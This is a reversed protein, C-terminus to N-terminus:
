IFKPNNWLVSKGPRLVWSQNFTPKIISPIRLDRSTCPSFLTPGHKATNNGRSRAYRDDSSPGGGTARTAAGEQEPYMTPPMKTCNHPVPWQILRLHPIADTEGGAYTPHTRAGTNAQNVTDGTRRGSRPTCPESGHVLLSLRRVAATTAAARLPEPGFSSPVRCHPRLFLSYPFALSGRLPSAVPPCGPLVKASFSRAKTSGERRSHGALERGTRRAGARTASPCVVQGVSGCGPDHVGKKVNGHKGSDKMTMNQLCPATSSCDTPSSFSKLPLLLFHDPSM